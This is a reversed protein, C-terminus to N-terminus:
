NRELTSRCLYYKSFTMQQLTNNYASWKIYDPLIDDFKIEFVSDGNEILPVRLYDRSLFGDMDLSGCLNRDITIRVNSIPEVYAKRYYDVIAKPTFLRTSIDFCFEKLLNKETQYIMEIIDGSIINKYEELSLRCMKKHCLNNLKEKKELFLSSCDDNYYRIRWKYRKGYGMDNDFACSNYYDDFYLSHVAYFGNDDAHSDRIM